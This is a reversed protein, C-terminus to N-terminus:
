KRKRERQQLVFYYRYEVASRAVVYRSERVAPNLYRNYVASRSSNVRDTTAIPMEAHFRWREGKRTGAVCSFRFKNKDWWYYKERCPFIIHTNTRPFIIIKVLATRYCTFFHNGSACINHIYSCSIKRAIKPSTSYRFYRM